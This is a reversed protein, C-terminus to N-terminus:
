PAMALMKENYANIVKEVESQQEMLQKAFAFAKDEPWPATMSRAEGHAKGMEQSFKIFLSKEELSIFVAAAVIASIVENLRVMIENSKVIRTSPDYHVVLTGIDLALAEISKHLRAIALYRTEAIRLALSTQVEQKAKARETDAILSVKYSELDRQHQAKQAELDKSLWHSIKTRFLFAAGGLLATTGASSAIVGWVFESIDGM